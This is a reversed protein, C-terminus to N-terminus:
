HYIVRTLPWVRQFSPFKEQLKLWKEAFKDSEWQKPFIYLVFGTIGNLVYREEFKSVKWPALFIEWEDLFRGVM